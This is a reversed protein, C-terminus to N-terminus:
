RPPYRRSIRHNGAAPPLAKTEPMMGNFNQLADVGVGAFYKGASAM